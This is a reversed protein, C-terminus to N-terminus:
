PNVGTGTLRPFVQEPEGIRDTRGLQRTIRAAGDSCFPSLETAISRCVQVIRSLLRHSQADDGRKKRLAKWPEAANLLQNAAEVVAVLHATATRFDAHQLAADINSPLTACATDLDTSSWDTGNVVKDDLDLIGDYYKHLLAVVRNTLNGLGNALDTNYAHVLRGTTFDTDGLLPVERTIWWRLADTGYSDVLGVPDVSNGASKSLKTGRVHVYDHVHITTPLSQGASLLLGLRLFM